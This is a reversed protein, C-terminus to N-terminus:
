KAAIMLQTRYVLYDVKNQLHKLSQVGNSNLFISAIRLYHALYKRPSLFQANFALSVFSQNPSSNYVHCKIHLSTTFTTTIGIYVYILQIMSVAQPQNYISKYIPNITFVFSFRKEFFSM